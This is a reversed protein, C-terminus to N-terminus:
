PHGQADEVLTKILRLAQTTSQQRERMDIILHNLRGIEQDRKEVEARLDKITERPM